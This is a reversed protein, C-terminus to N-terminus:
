SNDLLEDLPDIAAYDEVPDSRPTTSNFAIVLAGLAMAVILGRLALRELEAWPRDNGGTLSLAAVRIAFGYPAMCSDAERTQQALTILKRWQQDFPSM